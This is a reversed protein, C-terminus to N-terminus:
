ARLAGVLDAPEVDRGAVLRQSASQQRLDLLGGLLDVDREGDAAADRDPALHALQEGGAGVLDRM